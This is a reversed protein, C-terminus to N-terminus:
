IMCHISVNFPTQRSKCEIEIKTGRKMEERSDNIKMTVHVCFAETLIKFLIMTKVLPWNEYVTIAETARRNKENAKKNEGETKKKHQQQKERENM